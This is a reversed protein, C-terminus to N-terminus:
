SDLLWHTCPVVNLAPEVSVHSVALQSLRVRDFVPIMSNNVFIEMSYLGVLWPIINLMLIIKTLNATIYEVTNTCYWDKTLSCM